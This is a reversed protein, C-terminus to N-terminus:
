CRIACRRSPNRKHEAEGPAGSSNRESVLSVCAEHVGIRDDQFAEHLRQQDSIAILRQGLQSIYVRLINM